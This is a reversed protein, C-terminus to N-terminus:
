AAKQSSATLPLENNSIAELEDITYGYYLIGKGSVSLAPITTFSDFSWEVPSGEEIKGTKIIKVKM